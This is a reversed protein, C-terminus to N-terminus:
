LACVDAPFSPSDLEDRLKGLVEDCISAPVGLSIEVDGGAGHDMSEEDFRPNARFVRLYRENVGSTHFRARGHYGFDVSQWDLRPIPREASLVRGYSNPPM